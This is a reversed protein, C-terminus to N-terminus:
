EPITQDPKVKMKGSADEYSKGAGVHRGRKKKKLKKEMDPKNRWRGGGNGQENKEAHGTKKEGQM